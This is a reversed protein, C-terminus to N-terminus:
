IITTTTSLLPLKKSNCDWIYSYYYYHEHRCDKCCRVKEYKITSNEPLNLKEKLKRDQDYINQLEFYESSYPPFYYGGAARILIFNKL